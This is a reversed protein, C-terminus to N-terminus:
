SPTNIKGIIKGAEPVCERLSLQISGFGETVSGCLCYMRSYISNGVSHESFKETCLFYEYKPTSCLVPLM